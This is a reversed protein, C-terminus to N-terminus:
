RQSSFSMALNRLHKSLNSTNNTAVNLIQFECRLSCWWLNGPLVLKLYSCTPSMISISSQLSLGVIMHWQKEVQLTCPLYQMVEQEPKWLLLSDNRNRQMTDSHGCAYGLYEDICVGKHNGSDTIIELEPIWIPKSPLSIHYRLVSSSANLKAANLELLFAPVSATSVEAHRCLFADGNHSCALSFSFSTSMWATSATTATKTDLKCMEVRPSALCTGYISSHETVHLFLVHCWYKLFLEHPCRLHFIAKKIDTILYRKDMYVNWFSQAHIQIDTCTINNKVM